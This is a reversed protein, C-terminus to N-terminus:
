RSIFITDMGMLAHPMGTERDPMFCTAVYWGGGARLDLIIGVGPSIVGTTPSLGNRMVNKAGKAGNLFAVVQAATTGTKVPLATFFHLEDTTNAVLLDGNRLVPQHHLWGSPYLRWVDHNLNPPSAAIASQLGGRASASPSAMSGYSAVRFSVVAHGGKGNGLEIVRYLGPTLTAWYDTTGPGGQYGGYYRGQSNITNQVLPGSNFNPGGTMAKTVEHRFLGVGVFLHALQLDAGPTGGATPYTGNFENTMIVHVLGPQVLSGSQLSVVGRANENVVVTTAHPGGNETQALAPVTLGIVVGAAM